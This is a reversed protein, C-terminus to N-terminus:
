PGCSSTISEACRSENISGGSHLVSIIPPLNIGKCATPRAKNRGLRLVVDSLRMQASKLAADLGKFFKVADGWPDLPEVRHPLLFLAPQPSVRQKLLVSACGANVHSPTQIYNLLAPTTKGHRVGVDWNLYELGM